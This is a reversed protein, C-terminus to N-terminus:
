IPCNNRNKHHNIVPPWLSATVEYSMACVLGLLGAFVLFIPQSFLKKPSIIVGHVVINSGDVM